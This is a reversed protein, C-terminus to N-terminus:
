FGAIEKLTFVCFWAFVVISWVILWFSFRFIILILSPDLYCQMMVTGSIKDANEPPSVFRQSILIGVKAITQFSFFTQSFLIRHPSKFVIRPKIIIASKASKLRLVRNFTFKFRVNQYSHSNTFVIVIQWDLCWNFIIYYFSNVIWSFTSKFYKQKDKGKNLLLM